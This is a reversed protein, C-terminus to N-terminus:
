EKVIEVQQDLLEGTFRDIAVHVWYRQEGEVIFKKMDSANPAFRGTQAVVDIMLNWVRAQGANALARIPADRRRSVAKDLVIANPRNPDDQADTNPTKRAPSAFYLPQFLDASFGDFSTPDQFYSPQAPTTLNPVPQRSVYKGVLDAVNQLPRAGLSMKNIQVGAPLVGTTRGVLRKAQLDALAESITEPNTSSSTASDDVINWEDKYAKALIAKVVPIQRTNLNVRGAVLGRSDSTDNVCFVDLLASDGSEPMSFNLNKWPTGSFTYGLEAVTRFPRNLIMPRAESQLVPEGSPYNPPYNRYIDMKHLLNDPGMTHAVRMPLGTLAAHNPNFAQMTPPGIWATRMDTWGGMGRRVVGDPDAYLQPSQDMGTSQGYYWEVDLAINDNWMKAPVNEAFLGPRAANFPSVWTWPSTAIASSQGTNGPYFGMSQPFNYPTLGDFSNGPPWGPDNNLASQAAGNGWGNRYAGMIGEDRSIWACDQPDLGSNELYHDQSFPPFSWEPMGSAGDLGDLQYIAPSQFGFRGTRPDLVYYTTDGDQRPQLMGAWYRAMPKSIKGFNIGKHGVTVEKVDYPVMNGFADECQLTFNLTLGTVFTAYKARWISDDPQDSRGNAKAWILPITGLYMGVYQYGARPPGPNQSTYRRAVDQPVPLLAGGSQVASPASSLGPASLNSGKPHDPRYLSTPERFLQAGEYSRPIDFRMETNAQTLLQPTGAFRFGATTFGPSRGADAQLVHTSTADYGNGARVIVRARPNDKSPEAFIEFKTPGEVGLTQDLLAETPRDGCWDHPNWLQPILVTAGLGTNVITDTILLAPDSSNLPADAPTTALDLNQWGGNGYILQSNTKALQPAVVKVVAPDIRYLYPLNEIGAFSQVPNDADDFVIRTPFNDADFQDIINAGIQMLQYDVSVDQYYQDYLNRINKSDSRPISSGVKGISGVDIGAKLLEFFNAERGSRAVDRGDTASDLKMIAGANGDRGHVYQWCNGPFGSVSGTSWRLGFYKEINEATGQRLWDETIGADKLAQIDEDSSSARPASPGKCTLWALRNLAFRKKVLPEGVVATTGDNRPFQAKVRVFLFAPNIEDDLGTANNGGQDAALVKPANAVYGPKAGDVSQVPVYSPQNLARTFTTLYQLNEMASGWDASNAYDILQQRSLFAQDTRNDVATNNVTLYGTRNGQVMDFFNAAATADPSFNSFNAPVAMSAANRWGVLDDIQKITLPTATDLETLDAYAMSGKSGYQGPTSTSPYGAANVDLLGGEDYIAFAYRGITTSDAGQIIKPGEETVYVWDPTKFTSVPTTDTGSGPNAQPLYYHKNWRAASIARGNQSEDDTSNVASARSGIGPQQISDGALSTRILNPFPSEPQDAVGNRAPLLNEPLMPLYIDLATAGSSATPPNSGDVIEQKLDGIIIDAASRAFADANNGNFSSNSLQRDTISRSFYAVIVGTLLVIFALVIVLAVGKQRRRSHLSPLYTM